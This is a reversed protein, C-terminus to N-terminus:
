LEEKRKEYIIYYSNEIMFADMASHASVGVYNANCEVRWKEGICLVYLINMGYMDFSSTGM